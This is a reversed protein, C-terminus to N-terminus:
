VNVAGAILLGKARPDPRQTAPAQAATVGVIALVAACAILVRTM